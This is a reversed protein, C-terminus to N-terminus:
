KLVEDIAENVEDELSREDKTCANKFQELAKIFASREDHFNM